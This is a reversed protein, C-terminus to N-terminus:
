GMQPLTEKYFSIIKAFTTNEATLYVEILRIEENGFNLNENEAQHLGEPIPIDELGEVFAAKSLSAAGALFIAFLAFSLFHKM